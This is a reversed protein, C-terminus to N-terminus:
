MIERKTNWCDFVLSSHQRYEILGDKSLEELCNNLDKMNEENCKIFSHGTNKNVGEIVKKYVYEKKM